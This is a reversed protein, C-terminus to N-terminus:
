TVIAKIQTTRDSLTLIRGTRKPYMERFFTSVYEDTMAETPTAREAARSSAV